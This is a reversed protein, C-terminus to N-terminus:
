EPPAGLPPTGPAMKALTVLTERHSKMARTAKEHDYSERPFPVPNGPDIPRNLQVLLCLAGGPHHQQLSLPMHLLTRCVVRVCDRSLATGEKREESGNAIPLQIQLKLLILRMNSDVKDEEKRDRM